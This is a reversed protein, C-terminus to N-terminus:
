SSVPLSSLDGKLLKEVDEKNKLMNLMFDLSKDSPLSELVSLVVKNLTNIGSGEVNPM